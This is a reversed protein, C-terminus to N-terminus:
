EKCSWPSCCALSRQGEDNGLTQEFEHGNLRHNWGVMKDEPTRKEKQKWDKGADPDKRFFWSKVDPPWLIPTEAEADTRRLFIWSQKGKPNVSQIEKCDLPSELTKELVVTWSCWNKQTWGEKHDLEWMRVYSNSFGYSQGYLDKSAFYHRQKKIHKRSQGYSEELSCADKLKMAATM